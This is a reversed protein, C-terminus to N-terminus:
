YLVAGSRFKSASFFWAVVSGFHVHMQKCEGAVGLPSNSKIKVLCKLNLV